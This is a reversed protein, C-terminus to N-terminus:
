PNAAASESPSGLSADAEIRTFTSAGFGWPGRYQIIVLEDGGETILIRLGGGGLVDGAPIDAWELNIEDGDVRGAAVNAFGAQETQGPEIESLSTGFWWVCDGVQRIYYVGNDNGSWAGTLDGVDEPDERACGVDLVDPTETASASAGPSSATPESGPVSSTPSVATGGCGAVALALLAVGFVSAHVRHM